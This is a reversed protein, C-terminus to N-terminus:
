DYKMLNRDCTGASLFFINEFNLANQTRTKLSPAKLNLGGGWDGGGGM